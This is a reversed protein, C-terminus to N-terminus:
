KVPMADYRNKAPLQGVRPTRGPDVFPWIVGAGQGMFFTPKAHLYLSIPLTQSTATADWVIANHVNDWNGHRYAMSAAQGTDWAGGAGGNGGDGLRYVPSGGYPHSSPNAEYFTGNGTDVAMLVNGVFNHERSNADMGAARMNGEPLGVTGGIDYPMSNRGTAYNRFWTHMGANGHTSDSGINPTWNGEFLDSHSYSQHCGDIANEQWNAGMIIANDVYNYAIVNGGGSVNMVIPKNLWVAINNEILNASSGSTVAIGYAGGGNVINRAHHIYSESIVCRYAHMLQVSIGVMGPKTANGSVLEGDSEVRLLWCYAVNYLEINNNNGGTITMDEIGAWM